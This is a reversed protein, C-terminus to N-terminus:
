CCPDAFSLSRATRRFASASIRLLASAHERAFRALGDPRLEFGQRLM